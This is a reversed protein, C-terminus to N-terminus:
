ISGSLLKNAKKIEADNVTHGMHDFIDVEVKANMSVLVKQTEEVRTVPVHPDPDSSGIYVSTGEFNGQYNKLNLVDGILGGTFAVLGGWKRANRCVFELALCAGQSFGLFYIDKDPIAKANLTNIIEGLGTLAQSLYPENQVQPAMFSNPYWTHGPAQPALLTFESVSLHTSISLIDEASAGRGHIMVLVKKGASLEGKIITNTM